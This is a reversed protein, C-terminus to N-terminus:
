ADSEEQRQQVARELKDVVNEWEMVQFQLHELLIVFKEKLDM